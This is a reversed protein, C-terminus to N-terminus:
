PRARRGRRRSPRPWPWPSRGLRRRARRSPDPPENTEIWRLHAEVVAKAMAPHTFVFFREEMIARVVADAAESAPMASGAALSSRVRGIMAQRLPHVAGAEIGAPRNRVAWPLRSEVLGPCLVSVRVSSGRLALEHHLNETLGLVAFKSAVYPTGTPLWGSLAALSATNVIHAEEQEELLPLFSHCGHVVGWFDVGVVWSWLELPIDAFLGGDEVGANNCLVHVAGFAELTRDALAQVDEPRSVDTPVGIARAGAGTLEKVAADLAPEEVDALVVKMGESAFREALARGIGSAAGTVM